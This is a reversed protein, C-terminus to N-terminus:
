MRSLSGNCLLIPLGGPRDPHTPFVEGWPSEIGPGELAYRTAIGVSSDRGVKKNQM